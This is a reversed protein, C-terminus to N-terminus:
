LDTKPDEEPVKVSGFHSVTIFVAALFMTNLHKGASERKEFPHDPIRGNDDRAM